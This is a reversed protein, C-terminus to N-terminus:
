KKKLKTSKDKTQKKLIKPAKFQLILYPMVFLLIWIIKYIGTILYVSYNYEQKTIGYFAHHISYTLDSFILTMILIYIFLLGGYITGNLFFLKIVHITSDKM